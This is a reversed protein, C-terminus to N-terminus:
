PPTESADIFQNSTAKKLRDPTSLLTDAAGGVSKDIDYHLCDPSNSIWGDSLHRTQWARATSTDTSRGDSPAWFGTGFQHRM